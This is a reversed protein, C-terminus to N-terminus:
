QCLLVRKYLFKPLQHGLFCCFFLSKFLLFSSNLLLQPHHDHILPAAVINKLLLIQNVRRLIFELLQPAYLLANIMMTAALIRINECRVEESNSFGFSLLLSFLLIISTMAQKSAM